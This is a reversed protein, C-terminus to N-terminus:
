PLSYGDGHQPILLIKHNEIIVAYVSPTIELDSSPVQYINGDKDHCITTHM